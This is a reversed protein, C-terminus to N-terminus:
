VLAELQSRLAQLRGRLTGDINVDKYRVLVGGLVGPDVEFNFTFKLGTLEELRQTLTRQKTPDIPVASTVKGVVNGLELQGIVNFEKLIDPLFLIRKKNVLVRLLNYLMPLVRNSSFTAEVLAAKNQERVHPGELFAQLRPQELYIKRLADAEGVYEKLKGTPKVAALLSRAYVRIVEPERIM